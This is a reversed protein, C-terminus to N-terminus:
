ALGVWRMAEKSAANFDKIPVTKEIELCLKKYDERRGSRSRIGHEAATKRILEKIEPKKMANETKGPPVIVM